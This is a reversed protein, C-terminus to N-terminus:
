GSSEYSRIIHQPLLDQWKENCHRSLTEFWWDWSQKKLRKNLRLDFFVDFSRTVPRQAPFEGPVPSNGACIALVRFINGKSSMMMHSCLGPGAVSTVTFKFHSNSRSRCVSLRDVRTIQVSWLLSLALQYFVSLEYPLISANFPWWTSHFDFDIIEDLHCLHYYPRILEGHNYKNQFEPM